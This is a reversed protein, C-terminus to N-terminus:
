VSGYDALSDSNILNNITNYNHKSCLQDQPDKNNYTTEKNKTNIM